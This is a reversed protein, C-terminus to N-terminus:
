IIRLIISFGFFWFYQNQGFCTLPTFLLTGILLATYSYVILNKRKIKGIYKGLILSVLMNSVEFIALIFSFHISSMRDFTANMYLPFFSHLSTYLINSIAVATLLPITTKKLELIERSSNSESISSSRRSDHLLSELLQKKEEEENNVYGNM